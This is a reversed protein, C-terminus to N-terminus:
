NVWRDDGKDRKRMYVQFKKKAQRLKYAQYEQSVYSVLNFRRRRASLYLFGFLM